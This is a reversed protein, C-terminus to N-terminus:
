LLKVPTFSNNLDTNLLVTTAVRASERANVLVLANAAELNFPLKFMSPDEVTYGNVAAMASSNVSSFRFTFGVTESDPVPVPMVRKQLPSILM